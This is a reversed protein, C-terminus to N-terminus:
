DFGEFKEPYMHLFGIFAIIGAIMPIPYAIKKFAFALSIVDAFSWIVIWVLRAPDNNQLAASVIFLIGFLLAVIKFIKDM